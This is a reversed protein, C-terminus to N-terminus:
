IATAYREEHSRRQHVIEGNVEKLYFSDDPHNGIITRLEAELRDWDVKRIFYETSKGATKVINEESFETTTAFFTKDALRQRLEGLREAVQCHSYFYTPVMLREVRNLLKNLDKLLSEDAQKVLENFAQHISANHKRMTRRQPSGLQRHEDDLAASRFEFRVSVSARWAGGDCLGWQPSRAGASHGSDTQPVLTTRRDTATEYGNVVEYTDGLRSFSAM